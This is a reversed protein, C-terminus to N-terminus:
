NNGNMRADIATVEDKNGLADFIARSRKYADL